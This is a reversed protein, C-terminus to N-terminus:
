ADRSGSSSELHDSLRFAHCSFGGCRFLDYPHSVAALHHDRALEEFAELELLTIKHREALLGVAHEDLRLPDHIGVVRKRRGLRFFDAVCHSLEPLPLPSGPALDLM